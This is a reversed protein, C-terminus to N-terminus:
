ILRKSSLIIIFLSAAILPVRRPTSANSKNLNNNTYNYVHDAFLSLGIIVLVYIKLLVSVLLSILYHYYLIQKNQIQIQIQLEFPM